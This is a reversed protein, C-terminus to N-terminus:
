WIAKYIATSLDDTVVCHSGIFMVLDEKSVNQSLLVVKKNLARAYGIEFMTGADLGDAIALLVDSDMLGALDKSAISYPDNQFLGVDHFPSFVDAGYEILKSRVDELFWRESTTFFPGALYVKRNFKLPVIEEFILPRIPLPIEKTQCYHATYKSAELAAMRSPLKQVAWKLAFVASFIDGSGIPWVQQTEYIPIVWSEGAEIVIAGKTSNKIVVVDAGEAACLYKGIETLDDQMSMGSLLLAENRNLVLALHEAESETEKFSIWSQPDYVVYNGKVKVKGEIQGYMLISESIVDPLILDNEPAHNIYPKTLPHFYEFTVTDNILSYKPEINFISCQGEAYAKDKVGICSYLQIPSVFESIAAAGRLASGWLQDWYPDVCREKYTGGVVALM